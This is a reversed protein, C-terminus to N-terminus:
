SRMYWPKFRQESKKCHRKMGEPLQQANFGIGGNTGDPFITHECEDCLTCGCVFQGTEACTRSAQAGCSECELGRHEKCRVKEGESVPVPNKCSGCWAISFGCVCMPKM